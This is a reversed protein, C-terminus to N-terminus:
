DCQQLNAAVQDSTFVGLNNGFSNGMYTLVGAIDVPPIDNAPMNGVFTKGNIVLIKEKIGYNVFCALVARNKKLFTGDNLPPNLSMLGEGNSGHCNQCRKKYIQEGNLYYRKFEIEDANQCSGIIIGILVLILAIVKLKM